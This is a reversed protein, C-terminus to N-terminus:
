SGAEENIVPLSIAISNGFPDAGRVWVQGGTRSAIAKIMDLELTSDGLGSKLQRVPKLPATKRRAPPGEYAVEIWVQGHRQRASVHLEGGPKVSGAVQNVMQQLMRLLLDRDAYVLPLNHGSRVDTIRIPLPKEAPLTKAWEEILASVNVLTLQIGLGAEIRGLMLLDDMWGQIRSLLKVLRYVLGAARDTKAETMQSLEALDTLAQIMPLQIKNAAETLLRMKMEDMRKLHTIDRLVMVWGEAKEDAGSIPTLSVMQTADNGWPVEVLAPQQNGVSNWNNILTILPKPLSNLAETGILNDQGLLQAAAPNVVVLRGQADASLIADETHAILAQLRKAESILQAQLAERELRLRRYGVARGVALSLENNSILPKVLYDYAGYERMAAIATEITDNASVVIVEMQPYLKRAERLLELGGMEPMTLDTVLVAFPEPHQLAKLAELGNGASQALYGRRQLHAVMLDCLGTEDDVVLIREGSM